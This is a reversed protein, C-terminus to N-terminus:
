RGRCGVVFCWFWRLRWRRGFVLRRIRRVRGGGSGADRRIWRGGACSLSVVGSRRVRRVWRCGRCVDGGGDAGGCRVRGGGCRLRWRRRGGVVIRRVRRLRGGGCCVHGGASRRVRWGGRWVRVRGRRSGVVIRRVRRVWRRRRCRFLCCGCRGVGLGRRGEQLDVRLTDQARGGAERSTGATPPSIVVPFGFPLSLHVVCPTFLHLFFSLSLSGVCVQLLEFVNPPLNKQHRYHDRLPDVRDHLDQVRGSLWTFFKYHREVLEALAQSSVSGGAQLAQIERQLANLQFGATEIRALMGDACRLVFEQEQQVERTTTSTPDSLRARAECSEAILRLDRIQAKMGGEGDHGKTETRLQEAHRLFYMASEPGERLAKVENSMEQLREFVPQGRRTGGGGYAKSLLERAVKEHHAHRAYLEQFLQYHLTNGKKSYEELKALTWDWAPM